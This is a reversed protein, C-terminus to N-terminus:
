ILGMKKRLSWYVVLLTLLLLGWWRNNWLTDRIETDAAKPLAKIQGVIAPLDSTAGAAGRTIRAIEALTESKAPQGTLEVTKATTELVAEHRMGSNQGEIKLKYRASAMPLCKGQYVGWGGPAETLLFSDATRGEADVLTAKLLEKAVPTGLRDSLTVNVYVTQGAVPTEPSYFLRVGQDHSQHRKHAMWRIVQGWFRYHYLDEVGKRWRWASDIGMFLVNGNGFPRTALVPMRGSECSVVPNVALLDSGSRLKRVAANWTFGPLNKWVLFNGAPNDALMTLLHKSGNETLHFRTEATSTIGQPRSADLEVPLMGDFPSGAWTAQRGRSGPLFVVGSGQNEALGRILEAQEKTLEGGGIGVDGVFVVDYKGLAQMNEPFKALYGKGEGPGMGPHLLLTEVAVGPDRSLANRLYRYEWRPLSDIVLVRLTEERVDLTFSQTNNTADLEDSLVPTSLTLTHKGASPPTWVVTDQLTDGPLVRVDKDSQVVGDCAISIKTRLESPLHNALQFPIAVKERALCFSPAKVDRLEVDPLHQPAGTLVTYVPIGRARLEAAKGIPAEGTNWDGDSLLLVARLNSFDALKDGLALSLDTGDAAKPTAQSKVAGDKATGPAVDKPPADRVSFPIFTTKYASKLPDFAKGEIQGKLWAARTAPTQGGAVVDQTKMSGSDDWLVAIQPAFQSPIVSVREPQCLTLVILAATLMRLGELLGVARRRQPNRQWVRFSFHGMVAMAALAPLITSATWQFTWQSNM